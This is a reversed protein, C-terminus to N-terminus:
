ENRVTLQRIAAKEDKPPPEVAGFQDPLSEMFPPQQAIPELRQSHSRVASPSGGDSSYALRAPSNLLSSRKSQAAGQDIPSLRPNAPNVASAPQMPDVNLSIASIPSPAATTGPYAPPSIDSRTASIDLPLLPPIPKRQSPRPALGRPQYSDEYNNARPLLPANAQYASRNYYPYPGGDNYAQNPATYSQASYATQSTSMLPPAPVFVPLAPYGTREYMERSPGTSSAAHGSSSGYTSPGSQGNEGSASGGSARRGSGPIGNGKDNAKEVDHGSSLLEDSSPFPTFDVAEDHLKSRRRRRIAWTALAIFLVLGM